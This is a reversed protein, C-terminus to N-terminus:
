TREYGEKEPRLALSNVGLAGRVDLPVPGSCGYGGQQWWSSM